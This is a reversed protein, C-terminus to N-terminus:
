HLLKFIAPLDNGDRCPRLCGGARYRPYCEHGQAGVMKLLFSSFFVPINAIFNPLQYGHKKPNGHDVNYRFLNQHSLSCNRSMHIGIVPAFMYIYIFINVHFVFFPDLKWNSNRMLMRAMSRWTTNQLMKCGSCCIGPEWLMSNRKHFKWSDLVTPHYHQLRLCNGKPGRRSTTRKAGLGTIRGGHM